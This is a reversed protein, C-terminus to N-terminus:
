KESAAAAFDLVRKMITKWDYHQLAFEREQGYIEPRRRCNEVFRVVAGIEVPSPDNPLKLAFPADPPLDDEYAYLFPIGAACYERSKLPCLYRHGLLYGGLCSVAADCSAYLRDLGRSDRYGLFRVRDGISLSSSLEKLERITENEGVIDFVVEPKGGAPDARYRAMGRLVRDYGHTVSTGVVGLLRIKGGEPATKGAPRVSGPSIGNGITVAPIGWVRRVPEGFVAVADVARKMRPASLFHQATELLHGLFSRFNRTKVDLRFFRRYESWYPYTAIEYVVRCEPNARKAASAARLGYPTALFGKIYVADYKGERIFGCIEGTVARIWARWRLGKPFRRCVPPFGERNLTVAGNQVCLYAAEWGLRAVGKTQGAIKKLIGWYKPTDSVFSVYLFRM